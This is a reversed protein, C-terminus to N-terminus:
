GTTVKWRANRGRGIPEAVGRRHLAKLVSGVQERITAWLAADGVEFKNKDIILDTIILPDGSRGLIASSVLFGFCVCGTAGGFRSLWFAL